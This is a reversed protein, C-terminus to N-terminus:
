LITDGIGAHPIYTFDQIYPSRRGGSAEAGVPAKQMAHAERNGYCKNLAENVARVSERCATQQSLATMATNRRNAAFRGMEADSNEHMRAKSSADDLGTRMVYTSRRMGAYYTFGDVKPRRRRRRLLLAFRQM